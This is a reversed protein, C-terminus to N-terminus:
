RGSTLPTLGAFAGGEDKKLPLLGDYRLVREMSKQSPWLGVVRIPIHPSQVPPPPPMFTTERVRYHKGTYNFPQGRWLGTM